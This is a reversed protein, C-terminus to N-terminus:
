MLLTFDLILVFIELGPTYHCFLVSMAHRTLCSAGWVHVGVLRSCWAMGPTHSAGSTTMAVLNDWLELSTSPLPPHLGGWSQMEGVCNCVVGTQHVSLQISFKYVCRNYKSHLYICSAVNQVKSTLSLCHKKDRSTRLHHGSKLRSENLDHGHSAATRHHNNALLRM